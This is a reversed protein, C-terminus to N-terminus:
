ILTLLEIWGTNGTGTDKFWLTRATADWRLSTPVASIVGEPSGDTLGGSPLASIIDDVEDQSYVNSPADIVWGTKTGNGTRKRWTDGNNDDMYLAGIYAPIFGEPTGVGRYTGNSAIHRNAVVPSPVNPLALNVIQTVM